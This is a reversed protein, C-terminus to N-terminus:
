RVPHVISDSSSRYDRHVIMNMVGERLAEMPYQWKQVNRAEGTIIVEKNIHKQIFSMVQNVQTIIDDKTRYSDKITIDDQFRGLEITTLISPSEKFLLYVANTLSGDRMLDQKILFNLPDETIMVGAANLFDIVSQVKDFSIDKISFQSNLHYDWSTNFSQLHINVVETTSLIHNSNVIRKYYRGRTSVPKIPYEQVTLVVVEKGPTKVIDVEPIIPPNTKSKIENLLNQVTEQGLDIGSIRKKDSVGLLVRGGKSNSFAVLTEIVDNGFTSKFEVQEGEGQSIIKKLESITMTITTRQERNKTSNTSLQSNLSPKSNLTSPSTHFKTAKICSRGTV